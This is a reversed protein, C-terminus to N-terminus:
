KLKLSLQSEVFSSCRLHFMLTCIKMKMVMWSDADRVTSVKEEEKEKKM